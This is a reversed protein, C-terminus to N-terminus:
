DTFFGEKKESIKPVASRLYIKSIHGKDGSFNYLHTFPKGERIIRIRDSLLELKGDVGEAECLITEDM